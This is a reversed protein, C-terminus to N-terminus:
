ECHCPMTAVFSRHSMNQMFEFVHSFAHSMELEFIRLSKGSNRHPESHGEKQAIQCAINRSLASNAQRSQAFQCLM